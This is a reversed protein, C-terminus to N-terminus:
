DNSEGKQILNITSNPNSPPISSYDLLKLNAIEKSFYLGNWINKYLTRHKIIINNDTKVINIAKNRDDVSINSLKSLSEIYSIDDKYLNVNVKNNQISNFLSLISLLNIFGVIAAIGYGISSYNVASLYCCLAFICFLCLILGM